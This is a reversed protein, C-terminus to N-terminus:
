LNITQTTTDLANKLFLNVDNLHFNRISKTIDLAMEYFIDKQDNLEFNVISSVIQFTNEISHNTLIYDYEKCHLIEDLANKMRISIDIDKVDGRQKLRNELIELSPPLLFVNIIKETIANKKISRFGQFDVDFLTHKIKSIGSTPTGYLNECVVAYELFENNKIKEEFTEKSIFFYERGDVEHQRRQRTTASISFEVEQFVSSKADNMLMNCITTKGGGSPSSIIIYAMM